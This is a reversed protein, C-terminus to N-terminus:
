GLGGEGEGSANQSVGEGEQDSSAGEMREMGRTHANMVENQLLDIYGQRTQHQEKLLDVAARFAEVQMKAQGEGIEHIVKSAQAELLDIQAKTKMQESQLKMMTMQMQSQIQMQKGQLKMKEITIKPDEGKAPMKQPGPYFIDVGDINLSRLWFREVEETNYGPASYAAQRLMMAQQMKKQDSSIYPDAAPVIQNPSLTYDARRIVGNGGFLQEQPLNVSNLSYLKKFEQKMARWIRKYIANYIKMGNEEMIQTTGVKTNQGINEGSMLETSASIRNSYEVLFGLLQFLVGSPEKTPLPLINKKLDEGPSDVRKWENPAFSYNGGRVTVGRGLFGGGTNSMTGADVLQNIISNVSENIPGLLSGFGIDYIGGDPSPIFPYKTFNEEAEIRMIRGKPTRSVNRPYFRTVIRLLTHSSEEMTVVYPEEYGDGDLDMWCHQELLYFPTSSDSQGNDQIGTRKSSITSLQSTSLSSPSPASTFWSEELIDEYVGQMVREYIDNRHKPIRHTKRRVGGVSKANYDLILDQPLVLESINHGLLPDFYSKKFVCGMVPLILLLKDHEEEWDEDEELLQWSMHKSIRNGTESLQLSGDPSYLKAKVIQSGGILAPYARAHFQLASITILPFAINAANPWPFSKAEVIQLALKMAVAMKKEWGERSMLDSTYGNYVREAVRERDEENLLPLLNPSNIVEETLKIPNRLEWM